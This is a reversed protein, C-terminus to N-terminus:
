DNQTGLGLLEEDPYGLESIACKPYPPDFFQKAVGPNDSAWTKTVNTYVKSIFAIVQTDPLVHSLKRLERADNPTRDFATPVVYRDQNAITRRTHLHLLTSEKPPPTDRENLFMAISQACVLRLAPTSEEVMRIIYCRPHHKKTRGSTRANMLMQNKDKGVCRKAVKVLGMEKSFKGRMKIDDRLPYYFGDQGFSEEVCLLEFCGHFLEIHVQECGFEAFKLSDRAEDPKLRKTPSGEEEVFKLSAMTLFIHHKKALFTRKNAEICHTRRVIKHGGSMIFGVTVCALDM